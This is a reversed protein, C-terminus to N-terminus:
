HVSDAAKRNRRGRGVQIDLQAGEPLELDLQIKRMELRYAPGQEMCESLMQLDAAEQLSRRCRLTVEVVPIKADAPGALRHKVGTVSVGRLEIADSM